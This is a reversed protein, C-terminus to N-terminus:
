QKKREDICQENKMIETLKKLGNKEGPSYTQFLTTLITLFLCWVKKVSFSYNDSAYFRRLTSNKSVEEVIGTTM